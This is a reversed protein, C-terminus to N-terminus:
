LRRILQCVFEPLLYITTTTTTTKIDFELNKKILMYYIEFLYLELYLDLLLFIRFTSDSRFTIAYIRNM